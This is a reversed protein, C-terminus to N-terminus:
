KKWIVKNEATLPVNHVGGTALRLKVADKTLSVPEAEIARGHTSTFTRAEVSVSLMLLPLVLKFINSAFM